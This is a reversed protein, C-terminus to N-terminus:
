YTKTINYKLILNHAFEGLHKQDVKPPLPGTDRALKLADEIAEATHIVEEFSLKGDRISRLLPEFPSNVTFEGTSMLEVGTLLLRILHTAHKTDFGYAEELAARKANRGKRWEQYAPYNPADATPPSTLWRHHLEMRHRQQQAYGLYRAAAARSVFHHRNKILEGLLDYYKPPRAVYAECDLFLMELINPNGQSALEFFKSFGYVVIDHPKPAEWQEFKKFPNFFYDLGPLAIGRFDVDSDETALGYAHSGAVQMCILNQVIWLPSVNLLPQVWSTLQEDTLHPFRLVNSM